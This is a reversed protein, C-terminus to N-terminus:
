RPVPISGCLRRHIFCFNARRVHPRDTLFENIQEYIGFIEFGLPELVNLVDLYYTHHKNGRNMGVELYIFSIKQAAFTDAAGALVDLELGEVDIKLLDIHDVGTREVYRDLTEVIIERIREVPAAENAKRLHTGPGQVVIEHSGPARGLAFENVIVDTRAITGARDLSAVTKMLEALHETIPEFTHVRVFEFEKAFWEISEGRHGGVDFVTRIPFACKNIEVMADNGRHFFRVM